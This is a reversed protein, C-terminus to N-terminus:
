KKLFPELDGCSIFQGLHNEGFGCSYVRRLSTLHGVSNMSKAIDMALTRIYTGQECTVRAKLYPYEYAQVVINIITVVRKPIIKSVGQRAWEYSRKGQIKIASFKPTEQIINGLFLPIAREIDEYSPIHDSHNIVMGDLDGTDTEEGFRLTMDYIKKVDKLRHICKCGAGIAIPLVGTAFPDLTGVHGIKTYKNKLFQSSQRSSIGEPKDLIFFGDMM